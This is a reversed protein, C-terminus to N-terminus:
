YLVGKYYRLLYKTVANYNETARYYKMYSDTFGQRIETLTEKKVSVRDEIETLKQETAETYYRFDKQVLESIAPEAIYDEYDVSAYFDSNVYRLVELYGSYELFRNGSETCILFSQFNAEDEFMYGALHSLEHCATAPLNVTTIYKSLNAEMSFPFYYGLMNTEYMLYSSVLFKPRSVYFSYRPNLAAYKKAAERSLLLTNQSDSKETGGLTVYGLEDREMEEALRNTMEVLYNRLLRTEELGPQFDSPIANNEKNYSLTYKSCGYPLSCNLTMLFLVVILICTIAKVYSLLHKKEPKETKKRISILIRVGFTLSWLILAAVLIIGILILLEGFSFPFLGTLFAYPASIYRFLHETYFDCFSSNLSLLNLILLLVICTLYVITLKSLNHKRDKM